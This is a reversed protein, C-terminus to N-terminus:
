EVIEVDCLLTIKQIQPDGHAFLSAFQQADELSFTIFDQPTGLSDLYVVRYLETTKIKGM